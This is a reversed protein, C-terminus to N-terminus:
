QSQLYINGSKTEAHIIVGGSNIKKYLTRKLQENSNNKVDWFSGNKSKLELNYDAYSPLKLTINGSETKAFSKGYPSDLLNISIEGSQTSTEFYDLVQSNLKINGSQTKANLYSTNSNSLKINGSTTSIKIYDFVNISELNISGKNNSISVSEFTHKKPIYVVVTCLDGPTNKQKTSSISLSTGAVSVVPTKILNNSYIEVTIEDGYFVDTILNEFTLNFKLTKIDSVSFDEKYVLSDPNLDQASIYFSSILLILFFVKKKM